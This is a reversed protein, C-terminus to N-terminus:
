NLMWLFDDLVLYEDYKPALVGLEEYADSNLYSTSDDVNTSRLVADYTSDVHGDYPSTDSAECSLELSRDFAITKEVENCLGEDHV